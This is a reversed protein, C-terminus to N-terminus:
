YVFAINFGATVYFFMSNEAYTSFQFHRFLEIGLEYGLRYHAFHKYSKNDDDHLKTAMYQLGFFPGHFMRVVDSVKEGPWYMRFGTMPGAMMIFARPNDGDEDKFVYYDLVSDVRLGIWLVRDASKIKKSGEHRVWRIELMPMTTVLLDFDRPLIWQYGISFGFHLNRKWSGSRSFHVKADVTNASNAAYVPKCLWKRPIKPKVPEKIVIRKLDDWDETRGTGNAPSSTKDKRQEHHFGEPIIRDDEAQSYCRLTDDVFHLPNDDDHQVGSKASLQSHFLVVILGFFGAIFTMFGKSPKSSFVTRYDPLEAM